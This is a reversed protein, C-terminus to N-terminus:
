TRWRRQECCAYSMTKCTYVFYHLKTEPKGCIYLASDTRREAFDIIADEESDGNVDWYQVDIVSYSTSCREKQTPSLHGCDIWLQGNRVTVPKKLKDNSYTFNDFDVKRIASPQQLLPFNPKDHETTMVPPVPQEQNESKSKQRHVFFAVVGVGVILTIIFVVLKTSVTKM